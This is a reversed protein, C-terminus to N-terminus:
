SQASAELENKRARSTEDIIKYTDGRLQTIEKVQKAYELAYEYAQEVAEELSHAVDINIPRSSLALGSEEYKLVM